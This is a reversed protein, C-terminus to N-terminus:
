CNVQEDDMDYGSSTSSDLPHFISTDEKEARINFIAPAQIVHSALDDIDVGNEIDRELSTTMEALQDEFDAVTMDSMFRIEPTKTDETKLASTPKDVFTAKLPIHHKDIAGTAKAKDGNM